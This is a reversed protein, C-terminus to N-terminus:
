RAKSRKGLGILILLAAGGLLIWLGPQAYVSTKTQSAKKPDRATSSPAPSKPAKYEIYFTTDVKGNDSSADSQSHYATVVSSLGGKDDNVVTVRVILKEDLDSNNEGKALSATLQYYYNGPASFTVPGLSAKGAGDVSVQAAAPAPAGGLPELKFDTTLKVTSAPQDSTEAFETSVPIQVDVTSEQAMVASPAFALLSLAGAFGIRMLKKLIGKM